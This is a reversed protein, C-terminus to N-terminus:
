TAVQFGDYLEVTVAVAAVRAQWCYWEVSLPQEPLTHHRRRHQHLPIHRVYRNVSCVHQGPGPLGQVYRGSHHGRTGYSWYAEWELM